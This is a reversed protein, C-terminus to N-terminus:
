IILVFSQKVKKCSILSLAFQIRIVSDHIHEYKLHVVLVRAYLVVDYLRVIEISAM